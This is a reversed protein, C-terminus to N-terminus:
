GLHLRRRISNTLEFNEDQLNSLKQFVQKFDHERYRRSQPDETTGHLILDEPCKECIGWLGHVIKNRDGSAARVAKLLTSLKNLEEPTAETKALRQLLELRNSLGHVAEFVQLAVPHVMPHGTKGVKPLSKGMLYGYTLLLEREILAWVAAVAAIWVALAERNRVSHPGYAVIGQSEHGSDHYEAM